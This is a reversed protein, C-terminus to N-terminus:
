LAFSAAVLGQTLMELLLLADEPDRSCFAIAGLCSLAEIRDKQGESLKGVPTKVEIECYQGSPSLIVSLDLKKTENRARRGGAVRKGMGNNKEVYHGAERLAKIIATQIDREAKAM